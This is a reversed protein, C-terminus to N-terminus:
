KKGKKNRRRLTKRKNKRRKHVSKGGSVGTVGLKTLAANIENLEAEHLKGAADKETEAKKLAEGAKKEVAEKESLRTEALLQFAEKDKQSKNLEATASAADKTITEIERNKDVISAQVRALEEGKGECDKLKQGVLGINNLIQGKLDSTAM